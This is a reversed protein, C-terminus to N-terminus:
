SVKFSGSMGSVHPDCVYRYTGKKLTATVQSIGGPMVIRGLKSIGKGRLSVSHELKLESPNRMRLTVKGPSATIRTKSFGLGNSETATMRRTDALAVSLDGVSAAGMRALAGLATARVEPLPHHLLARAAAEDGRHGALAAARRPQTM